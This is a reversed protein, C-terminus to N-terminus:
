FAGTMVSTLESAKQNLPQHPYRIM